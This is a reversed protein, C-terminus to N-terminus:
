TAVSRQSVPAALLIEFSKYLQHLHHIQRHDLVPVYFRLWDAFAM